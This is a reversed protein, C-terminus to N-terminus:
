VTVQQKFLIFEKQQPGFYNKDLKINRIDLEINSEIPLDWDGEWCSYLEINETLTMETIFDILKQPSKKNMDEEPDDFDNSDFLLGCSCSTDSGVYYINTKTFKPRLATAEEESPQEFYIDTENAVFTGLELEKNTGIYVALCM